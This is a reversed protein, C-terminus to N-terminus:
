TTHWISVKFHFVFYVFDYIPLPSPPSTPFELGMAGLWLGFCLLQKRDDHMQHNWKTMNCLM